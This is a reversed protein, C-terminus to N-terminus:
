AQLITRLGALEAPSPARRFASPPRGTERRVVNTLHSHDAFGLDLALTTLDREGAAVREIAARVRLTTRYAHISSGTSRRFRRALHFPSVGVRRGLQPLTLREALSDAVVLRALDVIRDPDRPGDDRATATVADVLAVAIEWHRLPEDAPASLGGLWGRLLLDTSVSTPVADPMATPDIGLWDLALM